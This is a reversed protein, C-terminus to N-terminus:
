AKRVWLAAVVIIRREHGHVKAELHLDVLEGSWITQRYVLRRRNVAELSWIIGVCQRHAWNPFPIVELNTYLSVVIGHGQITHLDGCEREYRPRIRQVWIPTQRAGISDRPEDPQLRVGASYGEPIDLDHYYLFVLRYTM